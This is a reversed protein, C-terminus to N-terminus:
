FVLAAILLLILILAAITGGVIILLKTDTKSNDISCAQLEGNDQIMHTHKVKWKKLAINLWFIYIGCTIVSLFMWLIWKGFLQTATGDFQLRNGNIVTHKAEWRYVMCFAWPYCIGLTFLTIM